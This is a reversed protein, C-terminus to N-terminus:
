SWPRAPPISWSCALIQARASATRRSHRDLVSNQASIAGVVRGDGDLDIETSDLTVYWNGLNQQFSPTDSFMEFMYVVNSVNWSSIDGNFSSAGFFMSNMHTVRSVNWSSLHQNFSTAYQFMGEMDTVRSVDWSNLTQNFSSAGSFMYNM